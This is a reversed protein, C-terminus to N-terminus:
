ICNRSEDQEVEGNKIIFRGEFNMGEERYMLNFELDPWDPSIADFLAIPPSWASDFYYYACGDGKDYHREVATVGWKCGWSALQWDYGCQAAVKAQGQKNKALLGLVEVSNDRREEEGGFTMMQLEDPVPLLQHFSLLNVESQSLEDSGHKKFSPELGEATAVFLQVVEPPGSVQLENSCWNPM